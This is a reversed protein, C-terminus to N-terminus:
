NVETSLFPLLREHLEVMKTTAKRAENMKYMFIKLFFMTNQLREDFKIDFVFHMKFFVDIVQAFSFHDPLQLLFHQRYFAYNYNRLELKFQYSIISIVTSKNFSVQM